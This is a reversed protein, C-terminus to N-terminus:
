DTRKDTSDKFEEWITEGEFKKSAKVDIGKLLKFEAIVKEAKVICRNFKYVVLPYYYDCNAEIGTKYCELYVPLSEFVISKKDPFFYIEGDIEALGQTLAIEM